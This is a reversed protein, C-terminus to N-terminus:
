YSDLWTDIMKLVADPIEEEDGEFLRQSVYFWNECFDNKIEPYRFCLRYLKAFFKERDM